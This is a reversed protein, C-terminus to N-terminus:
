FEGLERRCLLKGENSRPFIRGLDDAQFWGIDVALAHHDADLLTLPLLVAIDHEGGPQQLSEAVPPARFSGAGPEKRAVRGAAMEALIGDILGAALRVQSAANGFGDGRMRQPVGESNMQQLVADVHAADLQQQAM